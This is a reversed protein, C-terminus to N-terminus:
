APTQTGAEDSLNESGTLAGHQHLRTQEWLGRAVKLPDIGAQKWWTSEDGVRHVERHHTRCLPVAFEDSARRGLARPQTFRLHHADSPKRGCLVCPQKMVFRLHDKDRYRRPESISLASKDITSGRRGGAPRRHTKPETGELTPAESPARQQPPELPREAWPEATDLKNSASDLLRLRDQFRAEIARADEDRLM